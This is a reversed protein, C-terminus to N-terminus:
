GRRDPGGRGRKRRDRGNRCRALGYAGTRRLFERGADTAGIRWLLPNLASRQAYYALRAEAV